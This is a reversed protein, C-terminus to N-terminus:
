LTSLFKWMRVDEDDLEIGYKQAMMERLADAEDVRGEQYLQQVRQILEEESDPLQPIPSTNFIQLAYSSEKSYPSVQPSTIRVTNSADEGLHLCRIQERRLTTLVQPSHTSIVFQVNPFIDLLTPIIRQQWSPHLYMDVEDIMVIGSIQDLLDPPCKPNLLVARYVLVTILIFVNQIGDSLMRFPLIMDVNNLSELVITDEDIDWDPNGWNVSKFAKNVAATILSMCREEASGHAQKKALLRIYKLALKKYWVEFIRRNSALSLCERYGELRNGLSATLRPATRRSERALRRTDYYAILPLIVDLEKQTNGLNAMLGQAARKLSHANGYRTKSKEGAPRERSWDISENGVDGTCRLSLLEPVQMMGGGNQPILRHDDKSFGNPIGAEIGMSHIFHACAISLAQLIASKGGANPATLATVQPNFDICVDAFRRFNKLELRSISFKYIESMSAKIKCQVM